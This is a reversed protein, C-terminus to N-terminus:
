AAAPISGESVARKFDRLLRNEVSKHLNNWHGRAKGLIDPKHGYDKIAAKIQTALEVQSDEWLKLVSGFGGEWKAMGTDPDIV